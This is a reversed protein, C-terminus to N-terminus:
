LAQQSVARIVVENVADDGLLDNSIKKFRQKIMETELDGGGMAAHRSVVGYMDQLFASRLRIKEGLAKDQSNYNKMDLAVVLSLFQSVSNGAVLPVIINGIEVYIGDDVAADGEAHGGGHGDTKDAKAEAHADDAEGAALHEETAGISAEAPQSFFFFYAGAGGGALVLVGIVAFLIMKM